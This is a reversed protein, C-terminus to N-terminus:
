VNWNPHTLQSPNLKLGPKIQSWPQIWLFMAYSIPSCSSCHYLGNLGQYKYQTSLHSDSLLGSSLSSGKLIDMHIIFAGTMSTYSYVISSVLHSLLFFYINRVIWKNQTLYIWKSAACFFSLLQYSHGPICFSWEHILSICLPLIFSYFSICRMCEIREHLSVSYLTSSILTLLYGHICTVCYM